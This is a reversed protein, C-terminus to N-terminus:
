VMEPTTLTVDACNQWIQPSQECDWRYGLVYDGPPLDAPVQVQDIVNFNFRETWFAQHETNPHYAGPGFGYLGPNPAFKPHGGIVDTLPAEFQPSKECTGDAGGVFGNCAPIPNRTWQSGLPHTGETTRIASIATRNAEDDGFQIWSTEGVFRLPTRQFCAETLAEAKPCLRYSYGGGHNAYLGWSVEQVSGAPWAAGTGVPLVESGKAGPEFGQIGAGPEQGGAEGCPDMVPAWGPSRWPNYRFGVDFRDLLDDYTRLRPDSVTPEMVGKCCLGLGSAAHGCEPKCTDCGPQCGQSYWGCPGDQPGTGNIPQCGENHFVCPGVIPAHMGGCYGAYMQTM